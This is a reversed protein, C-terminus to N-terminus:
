SLVVHPVSREETEDPEESPHFEYWTGNDLTLPLVRSIRAMIAYAGRRTVGCLEAVENTTFKRGKCLLFVIIAVRETPVEPTVGM